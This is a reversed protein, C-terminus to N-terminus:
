REDRLAARVNERKYGCRPCVPSEPAVGTVGDPTGGTVAPEGPSPDRPSLKPSLYTQCVCMAIMCGAADWGTDHDSRLHDCRACRPDSM